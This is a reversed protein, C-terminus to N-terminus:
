KDLLSCFGRFIMEGLMIFVSFPGFFMVANLEYTREAPDADIYRMSMFPTHIPFGRAKNVIWKMPYYTVIGSLYIPSWFFIFAAFITKDLIHNM